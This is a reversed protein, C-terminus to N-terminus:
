CSGGGGGTGANHIKCASGQVSGDTEDGFAALAGLCVVSLLAVLLAYELLSAGSESVQERTTSRHHHM